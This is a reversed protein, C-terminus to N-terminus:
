SEYRTKLQEYEEEKYFTRMLKEADKKQIDEIKKGMYLGAFLSILIGILLGMTFM